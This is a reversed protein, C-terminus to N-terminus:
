TFFHKLFPYVLAALFLGVGCSRYIAQSHSHHVCRPDGAIKALDGYHPNHDGTKIRM